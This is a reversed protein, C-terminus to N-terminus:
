MRNLMAIMSNGQSTLSSVLSEMASYQKKLNSEKQSMRVEMSEIQDDINGMSKNLGYIRTSIIGNTASSPGIYSRTFQDLKQRLQEAVGYQNIELGSTGANRTLLEAVDAFNTSLASSLITSDITLKGTKSDTKVGIQSLTSYAGTAGAVAGSIISQLQTKLTRVTADGSLVGGKKTSANYNSQRNLLEMADNYQNVLNTIKGTVAATDNNVALTTSVGGDKLLTFSVGPIVDTVTNSTKTIAVGDVTFSAPTGAIKQAFTLTNNVGGALAATVTYTNTDTGAIQLRYPTGSGDNIVSAIVNAGSSNIASAISTLSNNTSDITVNKVGGTGTTDTITITGTGFNLATSDTFGQNSVQQQSKALTTVTISHSGVMASSSASASLITSDGVSVSKAIFESSSNMGDMASKFAALSANIKNYEDIQSQMTTKKRFLIREPERELYMLQAILSKTDIGTALGGVSLDAM